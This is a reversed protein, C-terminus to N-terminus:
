SIFCSENPFNYNTAYSSACKPQLICDNFQKFARCYTPKIKFACNWILIKNMSIFFLFACGIMKANPNFSRFNFALIRQDFLIFDFLSLLSRISKMMSKSKFQAWPVVNELQIEFWDSVNNAVTVNYFKISIQLCNLFFLNSFLVVQPRAHTENTKSRPIM